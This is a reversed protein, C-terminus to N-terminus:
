RLLYGHWAGALVLSRDLDVQRDDLAAVYLEVIPRHRELRKRDTRVWRRVEFAQGVVSALARVPAIHHAALKPDVVGVVRLDQAGAVRVVSRSPTTTCTSQM